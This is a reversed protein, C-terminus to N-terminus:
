LPLYLFLQINKVIWFEDLIKANVRQPKFDTRTTVFSQQQKVVTCPLLRFNLTRSNKHKPALDVEVQQKSGQIPHSIPRKIHAWVYSLFLKILKYTLIM